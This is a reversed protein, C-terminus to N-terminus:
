ERNEESDGRAGKRGPREQIRMFEEVTRKTAGQHPLLVESARQGIITRLAPNSLLTRLAPALSASDEVQIAADQRRLHEVLAPFNEMHPGFVVPLGLAAPEGANQGGVEAVGPLSKGVFVVTAIRYWDRLLDLLRPSLKAFRVKRGNGQEIRLLLRESDIDSVKLAVM